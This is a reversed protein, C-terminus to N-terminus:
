LPWRVKGLLLGRRAPEPEGFGFVEGALRRYVEALREPRGRWAVPEGDFAALDTARVDDPVVACPAAGFLPEIGGLSAANAPSHRNVVVRVDGSPPLASDRLLRLFVATQRLAAADLTTVVIATDVRELAERLADDFGASPTDVVVRGFIGRAWALLRAVDEPAVYTALDPRGPGLLVRLGSAHRALERGARDRDLGPLRPLVDLLSPGAEIGLLTGADGSFRDLDLLAADQGAAAAAVALNVALTTKGVGGKPSVVAAARAGPRKAPAKGHPTRSRRVLTLDVRPAPVDPQTAAPTRPPAVRAPAEPAALAARAGTAAPAATVAAEEAEAVAAEVDDEMTVWQAWAVVELPDYPRELYRRERGGVDWGPPPPDGTGILVAATGDGLLRALDDLRGVVDADLVYIRALGQVIASRAFSPEQASGVLRLGAADALHALLRADTSALFVSADNPM